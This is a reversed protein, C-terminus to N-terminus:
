KPILVERDAFNVGNEDSVVAYECLAFASNGPSGNGVEDFM